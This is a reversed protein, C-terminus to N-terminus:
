RYPPGSVWSVLSRRVGRTVPTVRHFLFSPFVIGYGRNRPATPPTTCLFELEGGEYSQPDSLQVSIGLKRYSMNGAGADIHWGYHGGGSYSGIQCGEFFGTLDFGFAANAQIVLRDLRSFIWETEADPYLWKISSDRLENVGIDGTEGVYDDLTDGYELIRDCEKPTLFYPIVQPVVLKDNPPPLLSAGPAVAKRDLSSLLRVRHEKM